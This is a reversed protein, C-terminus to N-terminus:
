ANETVCSEVNQYGIILPLYQVTSRCSPLSARVAIQCVTNRCSGSVCDANRQLKIPARMEEHLQRVTSTLKAADQHRRLLGPPSSASRHAHQGRPGAVARSPSMEITVYNSALYLYRVTPADANLGSLPPPRLIRSLIQGNPLQGAAAPASMEPLRSLSGDPNLTMGSPASALHGRPLIQDFYKIL